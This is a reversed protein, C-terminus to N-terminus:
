RYVEEADIKLAQRIAEALSAATLLQSRKEPRAAILVRMLDEGDQAKLDITLINGTFLVNM